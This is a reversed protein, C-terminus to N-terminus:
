DHSPRDDQAGGAEPYLGDGGLIELVELYLELDEMTDFNM